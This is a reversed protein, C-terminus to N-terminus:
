TPEQKKYRGNEPRARPHPPAVQGRMRNSGISPVEADKVSCPSVPGLSTRNVAGLETTPAIVNRSTEHSHKLLIDGSHHRAARNFRENSFMCSLDINPSLPRVHKIDRQWRILPTTELSCLERSHYVTDIWNWLRENLEELQLGVNDAELSALCEERICRFCREIKEREQPQHGTHVLLIDLSNAAKVVQRNQYLKCQEVHLRIPLGRAAVAQRLCDLMAHSGYSTYFQAHAILRSASDM